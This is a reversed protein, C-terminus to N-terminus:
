EKYGGTQWDKIQKVQSDSLDSGSPPMAGSEVQGILGRNMVADKVNEYTLLPMPAGNALPDTHCNLCKGDIISKIDKTYTINKDVPPDVNPDDDGSNSSCSIFVLLTILIAFTELRKM